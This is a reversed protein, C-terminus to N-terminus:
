IDGSSYHKYIRVKLETTGKILRHWTRSKLFISGECKQPLQNDFQYSWDNQNIFEVDRDEWDQHWKLELDPVDPSFTRLIENESILEEKYPNVM